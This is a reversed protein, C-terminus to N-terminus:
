WIRTDRTYSGYEKPLETDSALARFYRWAKIELDITTNAEEGAVRFAVPPLTALVSANVRVLVFESAADANLLGGAPLVTDPAAKLLASEVHSAVAAHVRYPLYTKSSGSDVIAAPSNYVAGCSFSSSSSTTTTTSSSSGGGDGDGASLNLDALTLPVHDVLVDTVTVTYFGSETTTSVGRVPGIRLGAASGTFPKEMDDKEVGFVLAGGRRKGYKNINAGQELEALALAFADPVGLAEQTLSPIYSAIPDNPPMALADYGLGLVGDWLKNPNWFDATTTSIIGAFDQDPVASSSSFDALRVTDAYYSVDATGQVFVYKSDDNQDRGTLHHSTSSASADYYASTFAFDAAAIVLNTSGTDVVVSLYQSPTGVGLDLTYLNQPDGDLLQEIESGTGGIGCFCLLLLLLLLFWVSVAPQVVSSITTTMM